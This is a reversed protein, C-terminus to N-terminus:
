REFEMLIPKDRKEQLSEEAALQSDAFMVRYAIEDSENQARLSKAAKGADRFSGHVEILELNKVRKTADRHSIKFLYYPM